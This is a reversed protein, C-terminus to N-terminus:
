VHTRGPLRSRMKLATQRAAWIGLPTARMLTGNAKSALNRALARQTMAEGPSVGDRVQVSLASHTTGGIDFPETDFWAKYRSAVKDLDYTGNGDILARALSLTLEGDDTIQGPALRFM